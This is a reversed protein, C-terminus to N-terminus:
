SKVGYIHLLHCKFVNHCIFFNSRSCNRWKDCHKWLKCSLFHENREVSHVNLIKKLHRRSCSQQIFGTRIYMYRLISRCETFVYASSESKINEQFFSDCCKHIICKLRNIISLTRCTVFQPAIYILDATNTFLVM